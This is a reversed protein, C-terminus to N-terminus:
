VLAALLMVTTALFGTGWIASRWPRWGFYYAPVYAIRAILYITACLATVASGQDSFTIVFTAISFLILGEFHNAMARQLRATKDSLQRSPPRDRASSTYGTGLELNAPIAFLGFQVVQLLAALTLITLEPTM